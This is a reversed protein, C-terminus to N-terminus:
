DTIQNGFKVKQSDSMRIPNEDGDGCNQFRGIGGGFVPIKQAQVSGHGTRNQRIRQKEEDMIISRKMELYM